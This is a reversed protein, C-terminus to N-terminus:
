AHIQAPAVRAAARAPVIAAVLSVVSLLVATIGLVRLDLVSMQPLVMQVARAVAVSLIVGIMTGRAATLLSASVVQRIIDRRRAGVSRHVAIERERQRVNLLAMAALSLLAVIAAALALAGLVGAFWREPARASALVRALPQSGLVSAGAIQARWPVASITDFIVPPREAAYFYIAPEHGPVNSRVISREDPSFSLLGRIPLDRIVGVVTYWDGRLGGVQITKGIPPQGQFALSAFTDNVVVSRNRLDGPEFERGETIEVGAAAFFGAGVVQQQTRVPFLPLAMGAFGCPGCNSVVQDTPGIGLLVGPAAIRLGAEELQRQVARRQPLTTQESLAIRTLYKGAARTDDGAPVTRSQQWVLMTAALVAFTFAFQLHLLASRLEEAGLGPNGRAEPALVDGLWGPHAMRSSAARAVFAALGGALLVSLLLWALPSVASAVHPWSRNALVAAALGSPLGVLLALLANSAAKRLQLTTLQRRSAGVVAALAFEYRRATAHATLAILASVGAFVLLALLLALVVNLWEAVAAGQQQQATQAAALWRHPWDPAPWPEVAVLSTTRLTAVDLRVIGSLMTLAAVAAALTAVAAVRYGTAADARRTM